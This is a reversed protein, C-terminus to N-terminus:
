PTDSTNKMFVIEVIASEETEKSADDQDVASPLTLGKPSTVENMHGMLVSVMKKGSVDQESSQNLTFLALESSKDIEKPEQQHIHQEIHSNLLAISEFTENCYTCSHQEGSQQNAVLKTQLDQSFRRIVKNPKRQKRKGSMKDPDDSDSDDTVLSHEVMKQDLLGQDVLRQDMIMQRALEKKRLKREQKLLKKNAQFEEATTETHKAIHRDCITRSKFVRECIHCKAKETEKPKDHTKVHVQLHQKLKFTAKCIPCEHERVGSHRLSHLYVSNPLKLKEKCVSCTLNKDKIDSHENFCHEKLDAQVKFNKFCCDCRWNMVETHTRMHKTLHGPQKCQLGCYKCTYKRENTHLPMHRQLDRNLAFKRGCIECAFSGNKFHRVTKHVRLNKRSSIMKGCIDCEVPQKEKPEKKALKRTNTKKEGNAGQMEMHPRKEGLNRAIEISINQQHIQQTQNSLQQMVSLIGQQQQQLTQQSQPQIQQPQQQNPQPPNPAQNQQNNFHQLQNFVSAPPLKQFGSNSQKLKGKSDETFNNFNKGIVFVSENNPKPLLTVLAKDQQGKHSNGVRDPLHLSEVMFDAGEKSLLHQDENQQHETNDKQTQTQEQKTPLSHPPQQDVTKNEENFINNHSIDQSVGTLNTINLTVGSNELPKDTTNEINALTQKENTNLSTANMEAANNNTVTQINQSLVQQQQENTETTSDNNSVNTSRNSPGPFSQYEGDNIPKNIWYETILHPFSASIHQESLWSDLWKVRYCRLGSEDVFSELIKEPVIHPTASFQSFNQKAITEEFSKFVFSPHIMWESSNQRANAAM